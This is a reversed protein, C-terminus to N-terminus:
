KQCNPCYHTGRGALRIKKILTQCRECSQGARGYVKLFKLFGGRQGHGDVFHNFTTGRYKVGLEIVDRCAAFLKKLEAEILSKVTRAPNIKARWCAEDVYINGLGSIISQNLLISKVNATRQGLATKFNPWTFNETLPEIGYKSKIKELEKPAVLKWYGFLRLDNFFLQAGNKFTLVLRTHKNPLGELPKSLSHGGAILKKVEGKKVPAAYIMQGTMKLHVLLVETSNHLEFILLKGIRKIAKISQGQLRNQLQRATLPKITKAHFVEVKFIPLQLVVKELDRRVTEVEPLEPMTSLTLRSKPWM